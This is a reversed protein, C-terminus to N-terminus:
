LLDNVRDQADTLAQEVSKRGAAANGLEESVIDQMEQQAEVAPPLVIADLADFVAQRNAPPTIDLYASLKSEDAVPPLSWSADLRAQVAADSATFFEVWRQAAERHASDATVAVADAFIASAPQANGPEVAVDWELGDAEMLPGFNWIGTHWMGLRGEKFLNTDFDPTGAGDAETPMTTGAKEVLWTAAEVGEPGAFTAESKDANFFDGGAQALAKYFEHFSVPQYEGWVGAEVDTIAAAAERADDWTWDATPYELGAEDFLATNYILVVNSFSQPLALQEGEHQFAEFLSDSYAAGDVGELPALAGNSAYAVFNEFNLDVVDAVTGGAFATQLATWYDAWPLVQVEVRVDENEAEFAEVIADLTEEQGGNATFNMYRITVPEEASGATAGDAAPDSRTASGQSCAGLMLAAALGLAAAAGARSLTRSM